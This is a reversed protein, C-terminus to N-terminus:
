SSGSPVPVSSMAAEPVVVPGTGLLTEIPIHTQPLPPHFSHKTSKFPLLRNEGIARFIQDIQFPHGTNWDHVSVRPDAYDLHICPLHTLGLLYGARVRHNGDMVLGTARDIPIPALWAKKTAIERALHRAHVENVEESPRIAAIEILVVSYPKVSM